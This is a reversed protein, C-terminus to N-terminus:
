ILYVWKTSPQAGAPMFVAVSHDSNTQHTVALQFSCQILGCTGQFWKVQTNKGPESFLVM